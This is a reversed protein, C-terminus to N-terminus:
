FKNKFKKFCLKGSVSDLHTVSQDNSNEISVESDFTCEKM